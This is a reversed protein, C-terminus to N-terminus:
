PWSFLRRAPSNRVMQKKQGHAKSWWSQAMLMSGYAMRWSPAVILLQRTAHVKFNLPQRGGAWLWGGNHRM